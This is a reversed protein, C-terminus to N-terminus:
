FIKKIKLTGHISPSTTPLSSKNIIPENANARHNSIFKTSKKEITNKNFHVKEVSQRRLLAMEKAMPM